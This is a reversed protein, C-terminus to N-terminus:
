KSQKNKRDSNMDSLKLEEGSKIEYFKPEIRIRSEALRKETNLKKREERVEKIWERDDDSSSEDDDESSPKGEM